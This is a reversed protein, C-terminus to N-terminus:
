LLSPPGTPRYPPARAAPRHDQGPAAQITALLSWLVSEAVAEPAPLALAPLLHCVACVAEAHTAEDDALPVLRLGDPGCVEMVLDTTAAALCHAAATAAQWFLLTALLCALLAPPRRM